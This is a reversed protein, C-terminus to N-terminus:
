KIRLVAKQTYTHTHETTDSEKHGWPNYGVLEETGPIEWAPVASHTAMEQELPDAWGLISVTDRANAPLKKVM